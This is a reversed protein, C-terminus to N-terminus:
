NSKNLLKSLEFVGEDIYGGDETECWLDYYKDIIVSAEENTVINEIFEYEADNVDDIELIEEYSSCVESIDGGNSIIERLLQDEDRVVEVDEKCIGYKIADAVMDDFIQGDREEDADYEDEYIEWLTQYISSTSDSSALVEDFYNVLLEEINDIPENELNKM